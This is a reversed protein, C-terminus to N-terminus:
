IERDAEIWRPASTGEQRRRYVNQKWRLESQKTVTPSRNCCSVIEPVLKGAIDSSELRKSSKTAM